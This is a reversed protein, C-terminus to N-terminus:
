LGDEIDLKWARGMRAGRMMMTNSLIVALTMHGRIFGVIENYLRDWKSAFLSAVRKKFAHAEKCAM